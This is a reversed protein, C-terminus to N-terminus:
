LIGARGDGPPLNAPKRAHLLFTMLPEKEEDLAPLTSFLHPENFSAPKYEDRSNILNNIKLM